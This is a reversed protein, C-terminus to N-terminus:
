GSANEHFLLVAVLGFEKQLLDNYLLTGFIPELNIFMILLTSVLVPEILNGQEPVEIM